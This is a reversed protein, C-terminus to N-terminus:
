SWSKAIGQVFISFIPLVVSTPQWKSRWPFRGSGHISGVDGVNASPNKVVSDGHFGLIFLYITLFLVFNKMKVKYENQLKMSKLEVDTKIKL